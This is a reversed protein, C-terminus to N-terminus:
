QDLEWLARNAWCPGHEDAERVLLARLRERTGEGLRRLDINHSAKLCGFVQLALKQQRTIEGLVFCSPCIPKLNAEIRWSEDVNEAPENTRGCFHCQVCVISAPM